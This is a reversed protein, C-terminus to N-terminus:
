VRFVTGAAKRDRLITRYIQIFTSWRNLRSSKTSVTSTNKATTLGYKTSAEEALSWLRDHEQKKPPTLLNQQQIHLIRLAYSQFIM